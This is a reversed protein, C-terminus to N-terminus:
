QVETILITVGGPPKVHFQDTWGAVQSWGDNKLVGAKVLGDLIFKKAAAINDPNRQKNPEEWIFDLHIRKLPPIKAANAAWVFAETWTRKMRAYHSGKGGAGKAADIIDNLCPLRGARRITYTTL